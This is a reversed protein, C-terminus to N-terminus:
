LAKSFDVYEIRIQISYKALEPTKVSPKANGFLVEVKEVKCHQGFNPYNRNQEQAEVWQILNEVEYLKKMNRTPEPEACEVPQRSIEAFSYLALSYSKLESGDIFQKEKIKNPKPVFLLNGAQEKGFITYLRQIEPNQKLWEVVAQNLDPREKM